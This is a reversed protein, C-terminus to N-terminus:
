AEAEIEANDDQLEIKLQAFVQPWFITSSVWDGILNGHVRRTSRFHMKMGTVLIGNVFYVAWGWAVIGPTSAVFVFLVIWTIHFATYVFTFFMNSFKQSPKPYMASQIQFVSLMPVLLGQAFETIHSKTPVDIGVAIRAEHVSGISAL